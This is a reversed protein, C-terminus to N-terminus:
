MVSMKKVQRLQEVDRGPPSGFMRAYERSFQSPSEYGVRYATSAADHQEALMLTRAAMLRLSKQYQLPSLGTINKFHAHFSSVSMGAMQALQPVSLPAQFDEKIWHLAKAIRQLHSDQVAIQAIQSGQQSCLLRYFFERKTQNALAAVHQPAAILQALRLAASLVEDDLEAVFLGKACSAEHPKELGVYPYLEAILASDLAIKLLLYPSTESAATIQSQLPLDLTVTLLQGPRYQYEERGLVIQKEGQVLLCLSPQYVLPLPATISYAKFIQVGPVATSSLGPQESNQDLIPRLANLVELRM